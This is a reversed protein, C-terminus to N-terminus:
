SIKDTEEQTLVSTTVIIGNETRTEAHSLFDVDEIPTAPYDKFGGGCSILVIFLLCIIIRPM